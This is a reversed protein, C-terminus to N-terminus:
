GGLAGIDALLFRWVIWTSYSPSMDQSCTRGSRMGAPLSVDEEDLRVGDGAVGGVFASSTGCAVSMSISDEESKSAESATEIASGGSFSAAGVSVSGGTTRVGTAGGATSSAGPGVATGADTTRAWVGGRGCGSALEFRERSSGSVGRSRIIEVGFDVEDRKVSLALLRGGDECWRAENGGPAPVGVWCGDM